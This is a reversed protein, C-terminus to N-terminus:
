QLRIEFKIRALGHRYHLNPQSLVPMSVINVWTSSLFASPPKQVTTDTESHVPLLTRSVMHCGEVGSWAAASTRWSCPSHLSSSISRCPVCGYPLIPMSSMSSSDLIQNTTPTLLNAYGCAAQDHPSNSNAVTSYPARTSHSVQLRQNTCYTHSGLRLRLAPLFLNTFKYM